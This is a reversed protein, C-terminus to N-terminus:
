RMWCASIDHDRRKKRKLRLAQSELLIEVVHSRSARASPSTTHSIVHGRGNKGRVRMALADQAGRGRQWDTGVMRECSNRICSNGKMRNGPARGAEARGVRARPIRARGGRDQPARAAASCARPGSQASRSAAERWQTRAPHQMLTHARSAAASRRVVRKHTPPSPRGM